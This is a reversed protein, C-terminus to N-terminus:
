RRNKSYGKAIVAKEKTIVDELKPDTAMLTSLTQPSNEMLLDLFQPNNRVLLTLGHPDSKARATLAQPQYKALVTLEQPDGKTLVAMVLRPDNKGILTEVQQKAADSSLSVDSQHVTSWWAKMRGMRELNYTATVVLGSMALLGILGLHFLNTGGCFLIAALIALMIATTGFDQQKIMLAFVPVTCLIPWLFGKLFEGSRRQYKGMWWSLFLILAVKAFESPQYTWTGIRM